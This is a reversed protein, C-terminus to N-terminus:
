KWSKVFDLMEQVYGPPFSSLLIPEASTPVVVRIREGKKGIQWLRGNGARAETYRKFDDFSLAGAAFATLEGFFQRLGSTKIGSPKLAPLPLNGARAEYEGVFKTTWANFKDVTEKGWVLDLGERKGKNTYSGLIPALAEKDEFNAGLESLFSRVLQPDIPKVVEHNNIEAVWALVERNVEERSFEQSTRETMTRM